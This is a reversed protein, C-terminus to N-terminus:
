NNCIYALAYYPPRNDGHSHAEGGGKSGTTKGTTSQTAFARGGGQHRGNQEGITKQNYSHNHSPIQATTLAHGSIISSGGKANVSYNGGAGVVFRDKLNPKSNSGDCLQWGDPMATTAGSFLMVSDAPFTELEDLNKQVKAIDGLLETKSARMENQNGNIRSLLGSLLKVENIVNKDWNNQIHETLSTQVDSIRKEVKEGFPDPLLTITTRTSNAGPYTQLFIEHNGPSYNKPLIAIVQHKGDNLISKKAVSLPTGNVGGLKIVTIGEAFTKPKEIYLNNGNLDIAGAVVATTTGRWTWPHTTEKSFTIEPSVLNDASVTQFPLLLVFALVFIFKKM